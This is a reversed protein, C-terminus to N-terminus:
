EWKGVELYSVGQGVLLSKTNSALVPPDVFSMNAGCDGAVVLRLVLCTTGSSGGCWGESGIGM